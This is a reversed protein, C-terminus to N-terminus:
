GGSALEPHLQHLFHYVAKWYEAAGKQGNWLARSGHFGASEPIFQIQNNGLQVNELITQIEGAEEKSSAILFPLDLTALVTKLPPKATGFYDGPSFAIVGNVKEMEKASATFFALSASYSSGWLTVTKGYKEALYEVAAHIDQQADLFDTDTHQMRAQEFTQNPQGAFSGGSRQDIALVNFGWEALKPAIDAYEYKNYNAQHCLLIVPNEAHTEYLNASVILGDASKFSVAKPPHKQGLSGPSPTQVSSKLAQQAKQQEELLNDVLEIKTINGQENFHIASTRKGLATFDYQVTAKGTNSKVITLSNLTPVNSFVQGLIQQSLRAPYTHFALETDLFPKVALIDKEKFSQKLAEIQEHYATKHQAHADSTFSMSTLGALVIITLSRSTTRSRKEFFLLVALIIIGGAAINAIAKTGLIWFNLPLFVNIGGMIIAVACLTKIFLNLKQM